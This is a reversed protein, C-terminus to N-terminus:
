VPKKLDNLHKSSKFKLVTTEKTQHSESTKPNIYSRSKRHHPYFVGFQRLEIRCGAKYQNKIEELFSNIVLKVKYQMFDLNKAVHSAIEKKTVTKM